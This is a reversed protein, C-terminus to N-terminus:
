NKNYLICVRVHIYSKVSVEINPDMKIFSCERYFKPIFPGPPGLETDSVLVRGIESRPSQNYLQLPGSDLSTHDLRTDCQGLIKGLYLKFVNMSM